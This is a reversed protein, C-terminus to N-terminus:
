DDDMGGARLASRCERVTAPPATLDGRAIGRIPEALYWVVNGYRRAAWDVLWDRQADVAMEPADEALWEMLEEVACMETPEAHPHHALCGGKANYACGGCRGPTRGGSAIWGRMLELTDEQWAALREYDGARLLARRKRGHADHCARCLRVVEYDNPRRGMGGDSGYHHLESWPSSCSPDACVGGQRHCWALFERDTQRATM